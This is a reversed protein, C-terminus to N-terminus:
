INFSIKCRLSETGSGLLLGNANKKSVGNINYISVVYLVLKFILVKM